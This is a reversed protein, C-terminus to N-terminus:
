AAPPGPPGFIMQYVWVVFGWGGVIAVALVPALVVTLFLFAWLESRRTPEARDPVQHESSAPHMSLGDNFNGRWRGDRRPPMLTRAGSWKGRGYANLTRPKRHRPLHEHTKSRALQHPGNHM